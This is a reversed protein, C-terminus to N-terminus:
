FECVVPVESLKRKSGKDTTAFALYAECGDSMLKEVKMVSIMPIMAMPKVGKYILVLQQPLVFDIIKRRYDVRAYHQSLWDMGPILDFDKVDLIVLDGLLKKDHVEIKCNEFMERAVM